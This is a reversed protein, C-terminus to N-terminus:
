VGWVPNQKRKIDAIEKLLEKTEPVLFEKLEKYKKFEEEPISSILVDDEHLQRGITVGPMAVAVQDGRVAEPVPKQEKQVQQVPAASSGDMKMMNVGPRLVGGLVEVGVVAPNSQRFVYGKLLQIKCPKTLTELKKAELKKKEAEMWKEYDQLLHYIVDRCLLTIGQERAYEVVEPSEPQVNFGLVIGLLPDVNKNSVADMVDKRTINGITAKRIFFKKDRFMTIAAELSGLTDAKLVLGDEETEILVEQVQEQIEVKATELTDPTASMLPMGAVVGEVTPTSIRVGTAAHVEKVPLFKAKKARMEELPAPQFLARIKTVVPEHLGGLVVTDSAKLTGDFLIVDMAKGLGKVDKIELIVGKGPGKVKIELGKEIYRQALGMLVMIIEPIGEETLASCPIIALQKSYDEVRDFREAGFGRDYLKGVLEYIRQDLIQQVEKTQKSISQLISGKHKTWGSIKDVKNAAIIFPTRDSKLIELVELTQPMLGETVDVVLVAIDALSGGRKRLNTFAAHGPTDIFLLGPITFEKKTAELLDGCVKKLVDIPIISAGIAQTIGGAEGAAIASGRIRDLISSKGHDVHGLVSVILSRIAM